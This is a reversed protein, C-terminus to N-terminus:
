DIVTNYRIDIQTQSIKSENFSLHTGYSLQIRGVYNKKQSGVSGSGASRISFSAVVSSIQNKLPHFGCLAMFIDFCLGIKEKSVM